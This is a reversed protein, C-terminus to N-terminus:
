ECGKGPDEAGKPARRFEAIAGSDGRFEANDQGTQTFWGPTDNQDFGSPPNGDGLPPDALWLVGDVVLASSVAIPVSRAGGHGLGYTRVAEGM